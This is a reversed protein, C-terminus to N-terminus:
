NITWIMLNALEPDQAFGNIKYFNLLDNFNVSNDLPDAFLTIRDFSAKNQMAYDKVYNILQTGVGQRRNQPDVIIEDIILTKPTSLDPFFSIYSKGINKKM